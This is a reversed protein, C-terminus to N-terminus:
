NNKKLFGEPSGGWVGKFDRFIGEFDGWFVKFVPISSLEM